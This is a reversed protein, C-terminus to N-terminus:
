LAFSGGALDGSKARYLTHRRANGRRWTTAWFGFMCARTKDAVSLIVDVPPKEVPIGCVPLVLGQWCLLLIVFRRNAKM